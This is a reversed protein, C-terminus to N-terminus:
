YFYKLWCQVANSIYLNINPEREWDDYSGKLKTKKTKLAM